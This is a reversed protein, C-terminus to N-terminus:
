KQWAAAGAQWQMRTAVIVASVDATEMAVAAAQRM